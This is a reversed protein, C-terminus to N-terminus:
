IFDNIKKKVLNFWVFMTQYIEIYGNEYGVAIQKGDNSFALSRIPPIPSLAIFPTTYFTILSKKDANWFRYWVFIQNKKKIKKLGSHVIM